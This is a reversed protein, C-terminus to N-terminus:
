LIEAGLQPGTGELGSMVATLIKLHIRSLEIYKCKLSPEITTM